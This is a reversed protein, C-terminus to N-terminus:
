AVGKSIPRKTLNRRMARQQVWGALTTSFESRLRKSASTAVFRTGRPAPPRRSILYSVPKAVEAVRQPAAQPLIIRSTQVSASSSPMQPQNGAFKGPPHAADRARAILLAENQKALKAESSLGMLAGLGFPLSHAAVRAPHKTAYSLTNAIGRPLIKQLLSSSSSPRPPANARAAQAHQALINKRISSPTSIPM